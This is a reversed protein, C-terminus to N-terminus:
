KKLQNFVAIEEKIGEEVQQELAKIGQDLSDSLAKCDKSKKSVLWSGYNSNQPDTIYRVGFQLWQCNTYSVEAFFAYSFDSFDCEEKSANFVELVQNQFEEFTLLQREALVRNQFEEFSLM